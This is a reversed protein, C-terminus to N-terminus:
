KTEGGKPSNTEAKPAAPAAEAPAAGGALMGAMQQSRTKLGDPVSETAAIQKYIKAADAEKGQKLYALAILESASGYMPHDPKAIPSVRAIITEPKEKDLLLSMQRILAVDRFTQPAQENTAVQGYYEAAKAIDNKQMALGAQTMLAASQYAPDGDKVMAALEKDAVAANGANGAELARYYTESTVGADQVKSHSYYLYGGYGILGIVLAALLLKGYRDWFTKLQDERVADDVERVFVDNSDTPSLAM